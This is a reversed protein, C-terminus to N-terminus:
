YQTQAAAKELRYFWNTGRALPLVIRTEGGSVTMANTVSSWGGALPNTSQELVCGPPPNPLSKIASNTSAALYNTWYILLTNTKSLAVGLPPPSLMGVVNTVTGSFAPVVGYSATEANTGNGYVYVVTDLDTSGTMTASVQGSATDYSASSVRATRTARCYQSQYDLTVYTPQYPALNNTIGQLITYWNNSTMTIQNPSQSIPLLQWEHTYLMSAALSDLALKVQLTGRSISGSVDNNVPCWDGCSSINLIDETFVDFFQNSYQPYGPTPFWDCYYYSYTSEAYQPTEYLRYPGATLWPAPTIGSGSQPYAVTGPPSGQSIFQVGWAALGPLTNLGFEAYHPGVITSIPIHYNTFWQTATAFNNSVQAATLAVESNHNWFFFTDCCDLSHVAVTNSGTAALAAVDSSLATNGYFPDMFLGLWVKMGMQNATRVWTLTYPASSPGSVDDMRFSVFNPMGRMVFPKRAAWVMSRWALDDLGEVPGFITEPVWDYSAWQVARGLGYGQETVVFPDGNLLAIATENTNSPLTLNTFTVSNSFTISSGATHRATIYHMQSGPQTAPLTVTTASVRGGYRFGFINQEFQYLPTGKSLSPANDFSVLGTGNSVALSINQQAAATLYTLNTDLDAHGIIILAYGGIEPGVENTSIDEVTYPVGFNDLYPEIEQKFDSFRPSESNVLVVADAGMTAAWGQVGGRGMAVLLVVALRAFLLLARKSGAKMYAAITGRGSERAPTL